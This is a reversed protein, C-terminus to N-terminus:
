GHFESVEFIDVLHERVRDIPEGILVGIARNGAISGHFRHAPGLEGFLHTLDALAQDGEADALVVFGVDDAVRAIAPHQGIDGEGGDTRDRDPDIM